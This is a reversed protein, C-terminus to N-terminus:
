AGSGGYPTCKNYCKADIAKNNVVINNDIATINASALSIICGKRPNAFNARIITIIVATTNNFNYLYKYICFIIYIFNIFINIYSFASTVPSSLLYLLYLHLNFQFLSLLSLHFLFLLSLFPYYFLYIFYFYYLYFTIYFCFSTLSLPSLSSTLIIFNHRYLHLHVQNSCGRPRNIFIFTGRRYFITNKFIAFIYILM